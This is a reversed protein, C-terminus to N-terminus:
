DLEKKFEFGSEDSLVLIDENGEECDILSVPAVDRETVMEEDKEEVGEEDIGFEGDILM